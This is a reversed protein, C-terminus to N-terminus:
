KEDYFGLGAVSGHSPDTEISRIVDDRDVEDVISPVDPLFGCSIAADDYIAPDIDFWAPDFAPDNFIDFIADNDEVLEPLENVRPHIIAHTTDIPLDSETVTDSNSGTRQKFSDNAQAFASDLDSRRHIESSNSRISSGAHGPATPYKQRLLVGEDM